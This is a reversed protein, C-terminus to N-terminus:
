ASPAGEGSPWVRNRGCAKAKYLAADAMAILQNRTSGEDMPRMCAVGISATVFSGAPSGLHAIRKDELAARIREAAQVATALSTGTLVAIFEEGGFRAVLDMPRRLGRKLTAAVQRLCEDGVPHGYHDNYAKFHDVDLMMLSVESGDVKARTWVKELFDDFHRRNAVQTLLDSRSITDLRENAQELASMLTQERLRLLWNLREDRELCYCGFLTFTTTSLLTLGAPIMVVMPAGPIFWVAWVFGLFVVTDISLALWFRMQAVSNAFMIVLALATLYPAALVDKSVVCLYINNVAGLLAAGTVLLESVFPSAYKKLIYLGVLCIPVFLGMRLAVAQGFMDPIMLKDGVLNILSLFIVLYAATSIVRMREPATEHQFRQELPPAFRLLPFGLELLADIQGSSQPSVPGLEQPTLDVMGFASAADFPPTPQKFGASM